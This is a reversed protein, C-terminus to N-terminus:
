GRQSHYKNFSAHLAISDAMVRRRLPLCRGTIPISSRDDMEHVLCQICQALRAENFFYLFFLSVTYFYSLCMPRRKRIEYFWFSAGISIIHRGCTIHFYTRRREVQVQQRPVGFVAPLRCHSVGLARRSVVTTVRASACLLSVAVPV